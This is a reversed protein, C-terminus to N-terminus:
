ATPDAAHLDDDRPRGCGPVACRPSGDRLHASTVALGIMSSRGDRGGGGSAAATIGTGPPRFAHPQTPDIVGKRRFV